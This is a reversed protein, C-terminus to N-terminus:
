RTRLPELKYLYNEPQRAKKFSAIVLNTKIRNLGPEIGVLADAVVIELSVSQHQDPLLIRM